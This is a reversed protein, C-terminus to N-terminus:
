RSPWPARGACSSSTPTRRGRVTSARRGRICAHAHTCTHISLCLISTHFPLPHFPLHIPLGVSLCVSLCVFLCVLLCILLCIPDHLTPLCDVSRQISLDLSVHHTPSERERGTHTHTDRERELYTSPYVRPDRSVHISPCLPKHPM